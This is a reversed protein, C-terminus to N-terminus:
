SRTNRRSRRRVSTAPLAWIHMRPALREHMRGPDDIMQPRDHWKADRALVDLDALRQAPADIRADRVGHGFVEVTTKGPVDGYALLSETESGLAHDMEVRPNHELSVRERRIGIGAGILRGQADFLPQATVLTPALVALRRAGIPFREIAIREIATWDVM